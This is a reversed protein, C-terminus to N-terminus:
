LRGAGEPRRLGRPDDPGLRDDHHGHPSRRATAPAPDGWGMLGCGAHWPGGRRGLRGEAAGRRCGPDRWRASLAVLIVSDWFVDKKEASRHRMVEGAASTASGTTRITGPHM